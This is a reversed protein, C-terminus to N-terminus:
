PLFERVQAALTMPDFPKTLVGAAGLTVLKETEGAQARATIFVVPIAHTCPIARLMGLTTPGDIGPMMVDLLVIQPSWEQAITIAESGSACVRVDFELDLKLALEAIERIDSEDDVYLVRKM